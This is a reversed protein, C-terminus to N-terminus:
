SKLFIVIEWVTGAGSYKESKSINIEFYSQKIIFCVKSDFFKAVKTEGFVKLRAVLVM